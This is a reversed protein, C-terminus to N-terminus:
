ENDVSIAYYKYYQTGQSIVKEFIEDDNPVIDRKLLCLSYQPLDNIDVFAVNEGNGKEIYQNIKKQLETKNQSYGILEGNLSVSYIPKYIMAVLGVILFVSIAILIILKTCKRIHILTKKLSRINFM